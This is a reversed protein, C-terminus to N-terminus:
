ITTKRINSKGAIKRKYAELIIQIAEHEPSNFARRRTICITRRKDSSERLKRHILVIEHSTETSINKTGEEEAADLINEGVPKIEKEDPLKQSRTTQDDKYKSTIKIGRQSQEQEFIESENDM